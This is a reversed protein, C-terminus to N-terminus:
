IIVRLEESSPFPKWCRACVVDHNDRVWILYLSLQRLVVVSTATREKTQCQDGLLFLHGDTMGCLKVQVIAGERTLVFDGRAIHMGNCNMKGSTIAGLESSWVTNGELRPYEQFISLENLQNAFSRSTVYEEFYDLNKIMDGFSKCTQHHRENTITDFVYGDDREIQGALHLTAHFKPTWHANGYVRKHQDLHAEILAHLRGTDRAIGHKLAQIYDLVACLRRFSEIEGLLHESVHTSVWDLVIPYIM